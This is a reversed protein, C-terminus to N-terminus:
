GRYVDDDQRKEDLRDLELECEGVGLHAEEEAEAEGHEEGDHAQGDGSEGIAAVPAVDDRHRDHHPADEGGGAAQGAAIESNDSRKERSRRGSAIDM